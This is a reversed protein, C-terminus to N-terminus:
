VKGHTSHKCSISPASAPYQYHYQAPVRGANRPLTHHQVVETIMSGECPVRVTGASYQVPVIPVVSADMPMTNTSVTRADTSACHKYNVPITHSGGQDEVPGTSPYPRPRSPVAHPPPSNQDQVYHQYKVITTSTCRQCHMPETCISCQYHVPVTLINCIQKM